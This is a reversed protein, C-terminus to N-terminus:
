QGLQQVQLSLWFLVVCFVVTVNVTFRDALYPLLLLVCLKRSEAKANGIDCLGRSVGSIEDLPIWTLIYVALGAQNVM